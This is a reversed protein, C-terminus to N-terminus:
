YISGLFKSILNHEFLFLSIIQLIYCFACSSFLLCFDVQRGFWGKFIWLKNLHYKLFVFIFYFLIFYINHLIYYM